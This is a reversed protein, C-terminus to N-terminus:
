SQHKWMRMSIKWAAVKNWGIDITPFLMEPLRDISCYVCCDVTLSITHTTSIKPKCVQNTPDSFIHVDLRYSRLSCGSQQRSAARCFRSRKASCVRLNTWYGKFGRTVTQELELLPFTALSTTSFHVPETVYLNQTNYMIALRHVLHHFIRKNSTMVDHYSFNSTMVDHFSFNAFRCDYCTTFWFTALLLVQSHMLESIRPYFYCTSSVTWSSYQLSRLMILFQLVFEWTQHELLLIFSGEGIVKEDWTLLIWQALYFTNNFVGDLLFCYFECFFTRVVGRTGM